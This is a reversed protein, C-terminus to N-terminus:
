PTSRKESYLQGLRRRLTTEADMAPMPMWCVPTIALPKWQCPLQCDGGQGSYRSPAVGFWGISGVPEQGLRPDGGGYNMWAALLVNWHEGNPTETVLIETGDLPATRIPRWPSKM